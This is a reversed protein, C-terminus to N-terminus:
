YETTIISAEKLMPIVFKSVTDDSPFIAKHNKNTECYGKGTVDLLVKSHVEEYMGTAPNYFNKPYFQSEKAVLGDNENSGKLDNLEGDVNRVWDRAACCNQYAEYHGTLFGIGGTLYCEAHNVIQGAEFINSLVSFTERFSAENESMGLTNSDTGVIYGVPKDSPFKPRDKYVTYTTYVPETHEVWWWWCWGVKEWTVYKRTGTQRKYTVAETDAVNTRIFDSGPVMDYVEPIMDYPCGRWGAYMYSGLNGTFLALWDVVDSADSIQFTAMVTKEIALLTICTRGLGHVGNLLINGDDMLKSRMTAFNNELAKLGKDVGSITIIAGLRNYNDLAKKRESEELNPDSAMNRLMTAYALVRLGGQSHGVIGYKSTRGNKFDDNIVFDVEGKVIDKLPVTHQNYDFSEFDFGGFTRYNENKLGSVNIVNAFVTSVSLPLAVAALVFIKGIKKM